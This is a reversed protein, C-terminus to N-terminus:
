LLQSEIRERAIEVYQEMRDIGIYNRKLKKAVVATTGSGVFPDLIIDGPDSLLRITREALLEPFEGEHRDNRRVSRIEWVGRSGWEAWEAKSLRNRDIEVIGPKSFIYLHEFEDVARYSNSHWRSNAWCPDKHWIRHDYLFLNNELAWDQLLGGVLLIRTSPNSKGGRVNNHEIRRQITQESCGLIEALRRRNADPNAEMAKLIDNKTVASKKNSLNNAMYRPINSDKFCLIDAINIVLFGGKKLIRFHAAVVGKILNQWEEFSLHSEYTKGVFYPPSWFSLDVFNDPIKNLITLSDGHIIKNIFEHSISANREISDITDYQHSIGFEEM